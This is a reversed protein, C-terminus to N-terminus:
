LTRVLEILLNDVKEVQKDSLEGQEDLKWELSKAINKYMSSNGYSRKGRIGIAIGNKLLEKNAKIKLADKQQTNM